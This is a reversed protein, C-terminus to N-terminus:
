TLLAIAFDLAHTRQWRLKFRWYFQLGKVLKWLNDLNFEAVTKKEALSMKVM